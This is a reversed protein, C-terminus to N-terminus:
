QATLSALDRCYRMRTCVYGKTSNKSSPVIVNLLTKCPLGHRGCCIWFRCHWDAMGIYWEHRKRENTGLDLWPCPLRCGPERAMTRAAAAVAIGSM